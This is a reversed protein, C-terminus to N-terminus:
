GSFRFHLSCESSRPKFPPIINFHAKILYAYKTISNLQSLTLGYLFTVQKGAANGGVCSRGASSLQDLCLLASIAVPGVRGQKPVLDWAVLLVRTVHQAVWVNGVSSMKRTVRTFYIDSTGNIQEPVEKCYGVDFYIIGSTVCRACFRAEHKYAVQRGSLLATGIDGHLRCLSFFFRRSIRSRPVLRPSLDTDRGPRVKGWRGVPCNAPHAGSGTQVLLLFGSVRGPISGQDDLRYDSVIGVSSGV